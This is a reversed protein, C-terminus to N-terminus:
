LADSDDFDILPSLRVGKGLTDPYGGEGFLSKPSSRSVHLQSGVVNTIQRLIVGGLNISGAGRLTLVGSSTGAADDLNRLGVTSRGHGPKKPTTSGRLGVNMSGASEHDKPVDSESQFFELM